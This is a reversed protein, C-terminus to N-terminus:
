YLQANVREGFRRRIRNGALRDARLLPQPIEHFLDLQSILHSEVHEPDTFMM